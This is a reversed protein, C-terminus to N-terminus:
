KFHGLDCQGSTGKKNPRFLYQRNKAFIRYAIKVSFHVGPLGLFLSFFRYLRGPLAQWIAPFADVGLLFSGNGDLVHMQAMFDKQTKGYKTPDFAEDSIDVMILRGHRDKKKYHEIEGSCVSCSGDYFVTLPFSTKKM